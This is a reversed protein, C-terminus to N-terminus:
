TAAKVKSRFREEIYRADDGDISIGNNQLLEAPFKKNAWRADTEFESRKLYHNHKEPDILIDFKVAIARSPEGKFTREFAEKIVEGCGIVGREKGRGGYLLVRDGISIKKYNSYVGWEQVLKGFDAREIEPAPVHDPNYLLWYYNPEAYQAPPYAKESELGKLILKEVLASMTIDSAKAQQMILEKTKPTMRVPMTVKIM